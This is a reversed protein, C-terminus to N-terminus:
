TTVSPVRLESIPLLDACREVLDAMWTGDDRLLLEVRMVVRGARLLRMVRPLAEPYGATEILDDPSLFPRLADTAVHVPDTSPEDVGRSSAVEGVIGAPCELASTVWLGRPDIVQLRPAEELVDQVPVDPGLRCAVTAGGPPIALALRTVGDPELNQGVSQGDFAVILGPDHPLRNEVVLHVGDEQAQVESTAVRTGNVDCVLAASLPTVDGTLSSQPGPRFAIYVLALALVSLAGAVAIAAFMSRGRGPPDTGGTLEGQPSVVRDEATRWLGKPIPIRDLRSFADRPDM